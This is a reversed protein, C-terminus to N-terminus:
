PLCSLSGEILHPMLIIAKNTWMGELRSGHIVQLQLLAGAFEDEEHYSSNEDAMAM